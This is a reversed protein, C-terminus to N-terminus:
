ARAQDDPPLIQSPLRDSAFPSKPREQRKSLYHDLSGLPYALLFFAVYAGILALLFDCIASLCGAVANTMSWRYIAMVVAAATILLLITGLNIANRM